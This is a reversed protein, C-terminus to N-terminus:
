VRSNSFTIAILCFVSIGDINRSSEAKTELTRYVFTVRCAYKYVSVIFYIFTLMGPIYNVTQVM